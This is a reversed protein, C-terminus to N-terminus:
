QSIRRACKKFLLHDPPSVTLCYYIDNRRFRITQDLWYEFKQQTHEYVHNKWKEKDEPLRPMVFIFTEINYTTMVNSKDIFSEDEQLTTLM